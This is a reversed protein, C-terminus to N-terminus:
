RGAEAPPLAGKAAALGDQLVRALEPGLYTRKAEGTRARVGEPTEVYGVYDGVLSVVEVGPGLAGRWAEGVAEGPEAPVALLTTAGIRLAVVRTREPLWNWLLNSLLRDLFGPVAGFSPAPLSVEASAVALGPAGDAPPYPLRRVEEAVLRGYAQYPPGPRPAPMAWTQDGEAGQLFVTVGPLERAMVGPWDGSLLRNRSERITAHAPFIVVQGVVTGEPRAVRVVLLQGGRAGGDRNRVLDPVRAGAVSVQAPARAAAAARIADAIRGALAEEVAPDYPGTGFRAGLADDWFGGPGSHTHTAGLLIADLRLDRLRAEVKERLAAPVLLVDVSALAVALGADSLVLARAMPADEVGESGYRLRPYGGIPIGPPTPLPAEAAGASLAGSGGAASVVRPAGPERTGRVPFVALILVTAGVIGAGWATLKKLM